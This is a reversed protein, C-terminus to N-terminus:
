VSQKNFLNFKHIFGLSEDDESDPSMLDPGLDVVFVEGGTMLVDHPGHLPRHAPHAPDAVSQWYRNVEGTAPDVLLVRPPTESRHSPGNVVALTGTTEGSAADPPEFHVAYVQPGVLFRSAPLDKILTRVQQGRGDFVLVAGAERDAVYLESKAHDMTVSHPLFPERNAKGVNGMLQGDKSFRAVRQNCYGDAVYISGDLGTVVDTPMCFNEAGFGPTLLTGLSMERAWEGNGKRAYKYVQQTPTTHTPSNRWFEMGKDIERTQRSRM